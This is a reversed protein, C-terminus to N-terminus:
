GDRSLAHVRAYANLDLAQLEEVDVGLECADHRVQAVDVREIAEVLGLLAGLTGTRGLLGDCVDPHLNLLSLESRGLAKGSLVDPRAFFFGQFLEFGLDLCRRFETQTEVKEAM